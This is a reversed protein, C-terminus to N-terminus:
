PISFELLLRNNIIDHTPLKTSLYFQLSTYRSHLSHFPLSFSVPTVNRSAFTITLRFIFRRFHSTKDASPIAASREELLSYVTLTKQETSFTIIYCRQLKTSTETLPVTFRVLVSIISSPRYSPKIRLFLAQSASLAPWSVGSSSSM